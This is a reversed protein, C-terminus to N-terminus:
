CFKAPTWETTVQKLNLITRYSGDKKKSTFLNSFCDDSQIKTQSIVRKKLIKKVDTELVDTDAKTRPFEFTAKSPQNNDFSLLLGNKM